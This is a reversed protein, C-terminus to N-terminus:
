PDRSWRLRLSRNSGPDIRSINPKTDSSVLKNCSGVVRMKYPRRFLKSKTKRQNQFFLFMRAMHSGTEQLINVLVVGNARYSALSLPLLQSVEAEIETGLGVDVPYGAGNHIFFAETMRPTTFASDRCAPELGESDCGYFDYFCIFVDPFPYLDNQRWFFLLFFLLIRGSPLPGSNHLFGVTTARSKGVGNDVRVTALRRSTRCCTAHFLSGPYANALAVSIWECSIACKTEPYRTQLFNGVPPSAHYM